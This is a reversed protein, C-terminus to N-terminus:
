SRPGPVSPDGLGITFKMPRIMPLLIEATGPRGRKERPGPTIGAPRPTASSACGRVPGKTQLLHPYKIILRFTMNLTFLSM